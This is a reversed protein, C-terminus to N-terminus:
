APSPRTEKAFLNAATLDATNVRNAVVTEWLSSSDYITGDFALNLLPDHARCRVIPVVSGVLGMQLRKWERRTRNPAAPASRGLPLPCFEFLYSSAIKPDALSGIETKGTRRCYPCLLLNANTLY